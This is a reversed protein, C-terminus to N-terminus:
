FGAPHRFKNRLLYDIMESTKRVCAPKVTLSKRPQWARATNTCGYDINYQRSYLSHLILYQKIKNKGKLSADETISIGSPKLLKAQGLM